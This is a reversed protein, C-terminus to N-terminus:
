ITTFAWFGVRLADDTGTCRRVQASISYRDQQTACWANATKRAFSACASLVKPASRFRGDEIHADPKAIPVSQQRVLLARAAAPSLTYVPPGGAAVLDDIFRQTVPELPAGTM